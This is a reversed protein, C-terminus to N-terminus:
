VAPARTQVQGATLFSRIASVQDGSKQYVWGQEMLLDFDGPKQEVARNIAAVADPSKGLLLAGRAAVAWYEASSEKSGRALLASVCARDSREVCHALADVGARGDPGAVAAFFLMLVIM